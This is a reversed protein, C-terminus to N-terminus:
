VQHESHVIGREKSGRVHQQWWYVGKVHNKGLGNKRYDKFHGRCLHVAPPQHTGNRPSSTGQGDTLKITSFRVRENKQIEIERKKGVPMYETTVNKCNLLSIVFLCKWFSKAVYMVLDTQDHTYAGEYPAVWWLDQHSGEPWRENYFESSLPNGDADTVVEAVIAEMDPRRGNGWFPMGSITRIKTENHQRASLMWGVSVYRNMIYDWESAPYLERVEKRAIRLGKPGEDIPRSKWEIWTLDWPLVINPFMEVEPDHYKDDGAFIRVAEDAIVPHYRRIERM